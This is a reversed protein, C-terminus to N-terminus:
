LGVKGKVDTFVWGRHITLFVAIFLMVHQHCPSTSSLLGLQIAHLM